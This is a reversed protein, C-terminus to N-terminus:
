AGLNRLDSGQATVLSEGRFRGGCGKQYGVPLAFPTHQPRRCRTTGLGPAALVGLLAPPGAAAAARGPASRLERCWPAGSVAPARLAWADPLSMQSKQTYFRHVPM